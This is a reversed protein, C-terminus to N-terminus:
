APVRYGHFHVTRRVAFGLREYLAIAGTNTHVAHLFPREGRALIDGALATVLASALGRGRAEPATCVTSVETFGPPHLREGAMAVLRGDERVGLYTGLEVTRPLFPGPRAAETLALMQPVDAPGLRVIRADHADARAADPRELVMQVGDVGFLPQWGDPPAMEASFLDAVAGPGLLAALDAWDAAEPAAPMATFPCVGHEFAAATGHRRALAAHAGRLSHGVPADLVTVDHRM